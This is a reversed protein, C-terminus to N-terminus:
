VVNTPALPSVDPPSKEFRVTQRGTSADAEGQLNQLNQFWPDADPQQLPDADSHAPAMGEAPQNARIAVAVQRDEAEQMERAVRADLEIQHNRRFEELERGLDVLDFWTGPQEGKPWIPPPPVSEGDALPASPLAPLQSSASAESSTASYFVPTGPPDSSGDPVVATASGYPFGPSINVAGNGTAARARDM